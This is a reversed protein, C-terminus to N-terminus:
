PGGTPEEATARRAFRRAAIMAVAVGIPISLLCMTISRPDTGAVAFLPAVAPGTNRTSVGLALVSRRTAPLGVATAYPAVTLAVGLLVQAGIAYTGVAGLFGKGYLVLVLALLLVTNIGTVKRVVPEGKEALAPLGQRLAAGLVLPAAVLVVLPKSITWADATFGRVLLPVALPMFAVTGLATIVMILAVYTADGRAIRAALPMFPACPAMGVFLLGIAYPEPLPLLRALLVALAPGLVFSWLVALLVFRLNRAAQGLERLRVLLGVDLLSGAIFVVISIDLLNKLM